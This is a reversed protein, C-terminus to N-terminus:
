DAVLTESPESLNVSDDPASKKLFRSPIDSQVNAPAQIIRVSTDSTPPSSFVQKLDLKPKAAPEPNPTETTESSSTAPKPEPLSEPIPAAAPATAESPKLESTISPSPEPFAAEPQSPKPFPTEVIEPLTPPLGSDSTSQESPPTQPQIPIPVPKIVPRPEVPPTILEPTTTPEEVGVPPESPIVLEEPELTQEPQEPLVTPQSSPTELTEPFEPPSSPTSGPRRFRNLFRGFKPKQTPQTELPAVEKFTPEVITAPPESPTPSADSQPTPETEEPVIPEASPTEVIEPLEPSPSPTEAPRRFRNFLGGSKPKQTPKAEPPAAEISPSPEELTAPSESSSPSLEPQPTPETEEPAAPEASPTEVVEPLEPSPSPTEAPRRFRDFFGGSKPKQAPKAEPPTVEKFTPEEITAPPESPSPSLEPQPTPETEEPVVPEASPIEVPEPLEPSPSPTETPRRFRNFFGGFKPKQASKAEPPAVETFTPEEITAPPENLTPSADPQPTPETQEPVVPEASPTEVVKPLEPSPSPAPTVVPLPTPTPKTKYNPGVIRGAAEASLEGRVLKSLTDQGKPEYNILRVTNNFVNKIPNGQEDLFELKIWNKGPQFGKLYVPQWRDLVFSEGNITVRIRWDAIQDDPNEQAVLHLPANTLYFDLMIPEAGYSGTPRSYTLLPLASDPNNDPTKTYIHFTTQAYAGENKFSEHWPRSAFVRLTHTGPSLDEFVLPQNIDYVAKYPQNDLIVHLHPGLGLDPDKFIPLDQVQIQVSVNTDQLVEDAKPNVISVQPQYAELSQSLQQIVPPPAVESLQGAIQTKSAQDTNSAQPPEIRDSRNGCGVLGWVLIAAILFSVCGRVTAWRRNKDLVSEGKAVPM